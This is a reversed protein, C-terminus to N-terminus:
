MVNKIVNECKQIHDKGIKNMFYYSISASVAQGVVPFWKTQKAATRKAVDRIVIKLFASSIKKGIFQSGQIAAASMIREKVDDGLSNVQKHDLGYIKNVDEIIDKMLKLDVGFDLGPIPVVSMTSSMLSKRKVIAEARERRERLEQITTPMAGKGGVNEIKFVSNGIKNTLNSTLNNKFGM